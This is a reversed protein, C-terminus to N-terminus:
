DDEDGNIFLFKLEGFKIVDKNKLEIAESIREDNLFTGNSSNLDELFYIGQDLIIRAHFSSLYKDKICITNKDDRGITNNEGIYYYEQIKFKNEQNQNIFQLYTDSIQEKKIAYRVDYYIIRIISYIFYLVIVVFVYKLITSLLQYLTMNGFVQISFVKDIFNFFQDM